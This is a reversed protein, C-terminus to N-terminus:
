CKATYYMNEVDANESEEDNDDDSYEFDYDQYSILFSINHITSKGCVEDESGQMYDADDEDM